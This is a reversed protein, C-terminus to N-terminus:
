GVKVFTISTDSLAALSGPSTVRFSTVGDHTVASVVTHETGDHTVESGSVVAAKTVFVGNTDVAAFSVPAHAAFLAAVVGAAVPAFIMTLNGTRKPNM